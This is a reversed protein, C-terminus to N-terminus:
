RAVSESPWGASAVTQARFGERRVLLEPSAAIFTADGRSAAFVFCSSFGGRLVDLVQARRNASLKGVGDRADLEGAAQM